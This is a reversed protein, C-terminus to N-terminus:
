RGEQDRGNGLNMRAVGCGAASMRLPLAGVVVQALRLGEVRWLSSPSASCRPLREAAIMKQPLEGVIVLRRWCATGGVRADSDEAFGLFHRVAEV